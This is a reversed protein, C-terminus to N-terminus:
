NPPKPFAAILKSTGNSTNQSQAEEKADKGAGPGEEQGGAAELVQRAKIQLDDLQATVSFLEQKLEANRTMEAQLDADKAEIIANYVHEEVAMMKQLDPNKAMEEGLDCRLDHNSSLGMLVKTVKALDKQAQIRASKETKLEEKNEDARLILNNNTEIHEQHEAYYKSQLERLERHMGNLMGQLKMQRIVQENHKEDHAESEDLLQENESKLFQCHAQLQQMSVQAHQLASIYYALDEKMQENQVATEQAEEREKAAAEREEAERNVKEAMKIDTFDAEIQDRSRGTMGRLEAIGDRQLKLARQAKNKASLASYYRANLRIQERLDLDPGLLREDELAEFSVKAGELDKELVALREEAFALYRTDKGTTGFPSGALARALGFDTFVQSNTTTASAPSSGAAPLTTSPSSSTQSFRSTLMIGTPGATDTTRYFPRASPRRRLPPTSSESGTSPLSNIAMALKLAGLRLADSVSTAETPEQQPPSAMEPSRYSDTHTAHWHPSSTEIATPTTTDHFLPQALHFFTSTRAQAGLSPPTSPLALM